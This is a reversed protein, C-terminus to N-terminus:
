IQDWEKEGHRGYLRVEPYLDLGFKTKVEASVYKAMAVIEHPKAKGLNVIVLAQNVWTGAQGHKIGKCGAKDILWGAALKYSGDAQLYAPVAEYQEQLKSLADATVYPNKFFSGANGVHKPNPLKSNRLAIVQNRVAQANKFEFSQLGAYNQQPKFGPQLRLTVHTIFLAREKHQKFFSTRYGFACQEKSFTICQGSELDYAEVSEILDGIEVGYAGVNQIPAAGVTGPILSLNELGNIGHDLLLEITSDLLEAGGIRVQYYAVDETDLVRTDSVRTDSVGTDSVSTNEVSTDIVSPKLVQDKTRGSGYVTRLEIGKIRNILVTGAFDETFLVDSGGGLIMYPKSLPQALDEVTHIERGEQCFVTLNFTNYATLDFM